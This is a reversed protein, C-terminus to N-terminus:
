QSKITLLKDTTVRKIFLFRKEWYMDYSPEGEGEIGVGSNPCHIMKIKGNDNAYIMGTHQVKLVGNKQSGFFILDGPKCDKKNVTVGMQSQMQASHPLTVGSQRFLYVNFGSCDLGGPSEGGYKYRTGVLEKADAVLKKDSVSPSKINDVVTPKTDVPPKSKRLEIEAVLVAYIAVQTGFLKEYKKAEKLASSYRKKEFKEIIKDEYVSAIEVFLSEDAVVNLQKIKEYKTLNRISTSFDSTRNSQQYKEFYSITLYYYALEKNDGKSLLRDSKKICKEPNKLYSKELKLQEKSLNQSSASISWFLCVSLLGIIKSKIEQSM